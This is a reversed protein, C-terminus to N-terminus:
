SAIKIVQLAYDAVQECGFDILLMGGDFLLSCARRAGTYPQNVSSISLSSRFSAFDSSSSTVSVPQEAGLGVRSRDALPV